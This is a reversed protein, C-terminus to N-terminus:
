LTPYLAWLKSVAHQPKNNDWIKFVEMTETGKVEMRASLGSANKLQPDAGFSLLMAVCIAHGGFCAAQVTLDSLQLFPVM